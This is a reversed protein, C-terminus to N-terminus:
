YFFLVVYHYLYSFFWNVVLVFISIFGWWKGFMKRLASSAILREKLTIDNSEVNNQSRFYHKHSHGVFIDMPTFDPSRPPWPVPRRNSIWCNQFLVNLHKRLANTNNAAAVDQQFWRLERLVQLTMKQLFDEFERFKPLSRRNFEWLKLIVWYYAYRFNWVLHQIWIQNTTNRTMGHPPQGVGLYTQQKQWVHWLKHIWKQWDVLYFVFIPFIKWFKTYSIVFIKDPKQM